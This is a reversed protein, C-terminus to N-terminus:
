TKGLYVKVDRLRKKASKTLSEFLKADDPAFPLSIGRELLTITKRIQDRWDIILPAKERQEAKIADGFSEEISFEGEEVLKDIAEPTYKLINPLYRIDTLRRIKKRELLEYLTECADDDTFKRKSDDWGLWNRLSKKGLVESFYSFLEKHQSAYEGYDEDEVMQMYASYARLLRGVEKATVGGGLARSIETPKLGQKELSLCALARAFAPWGHVPSMHSIGQLLLRDRELKETTTNVLLLDLKMLKSRRKELIEGTVGPPAEAMIWKIAAVRRNGELVVYKDSGHKFHKRVVLMQIPLYGSTAISARLDDIGDKKLTAFTTEQVGNGDIGEEPEITGRVEALRPNNPDLLVRNLDLSIPKLRELIESFDQISMTMVNKNNPNQKYTIQRKRKESKGM